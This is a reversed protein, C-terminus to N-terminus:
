VVFPILRWTRKRYEAYEPFTRSLLREEFVSRVLQAVVFIVLAVMGWLKPRDLVGCIGVIIEAAYLPHRIFRYPGGSVVRRAEPIISFSKRLYLLGWVALIYAGFVGVAAVVLATDSPTVLNDGPMVPVGVLILTGTFAAIRAVLRGDRARPRPRVIYIGVPLCIFALYLADNALQLSDRFTGAHGFDAALRQFQLYGLFAFLVGPVVRGFLLFRWRDVVEATLRPGSTQATASM